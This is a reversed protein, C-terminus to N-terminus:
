DNVEKEVNYIQMKGERFFYLRGCKICEWFPDLLPMNDVLEEVSKPNSDLLKYYDEDLICSYVNCTELNEDHMSNGCICSVKMEIM